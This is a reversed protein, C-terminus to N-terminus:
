PSTDPKRQLWLQQIHRELVTRRKPDSTSSLLRVFVDHADDTLGARALSEAAHFRATHGWPDEGKSGNYTASDLYREAAHFYQGLAGHSEAQWYLIERKMRANDVRDYIQVLLGLADSHREVAQLEFVVQLLRDALVTDLKPQGNIIARLLSSAVEHDGAYVLVRARRLNWLVPDEQEPPKDLDKMLRAALHVKFEALTKDVLRYRIVDPIQEVNRYRATGLYLAQLVDAYGAVLLSEGFQQHAYRRTVDDQGHRMLFVYLARAYHPRKKKKYEETKHFWDRDKGVVLRANNGLVEALREYAQWLEDPLLPFLQDSAGNADADLARELAEVRTGPDKAREAAQAALTWARRRLEPHKRLAPDLKAIQRLVNKPEFAGTRLGALLKMLRGEFSQVGALIDFVPKDNGARLLIEAHLAQWSDDKARFDQQYRLLATQADALNDDMLYSRIVLRRWRAQLAADVHEQWILQRLYGRASQTDNASLRIEAAFALVWRRFDDPADDPLKSVRQTVADWNGQSRYIELRRRELAYWGDMGAQRAQASEIIGLALNRAGGKVLIDIREAGDVDARAAAGPAATLVCTLTLAFISTLRSPM